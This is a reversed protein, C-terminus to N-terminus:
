LLGGVTGIKIWILGDWKKFVCKLIISGNVDTHELHDRKRLNELWSRTHM